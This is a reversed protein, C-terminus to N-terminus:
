KVVRSLTSNGHRGKEDPRELETNAAVSYDNAAM